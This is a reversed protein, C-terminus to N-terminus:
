TAKNNQNLQKAKFFSKSTINGVKYKFNDGTGHSKYEPSRKYEVELDEIQMTDLTPPRMRAGVLYWLENDDDYQM